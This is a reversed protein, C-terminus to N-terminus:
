EGQIEETDGFTKTGDASEAPIDLNENYKLLSKKIKNISIDSIGAEKLANVTEINVEAGSYDGILKQVLKELDNPHNPDYGELSSLDLDPNKEMEKRIENRVRKKTKIAAKIEKDTYDGIPKSLEELGLFEKLQDENYSGVEDKLQGWNKKADEAKINKEHKEPKDREPKEKEPKDKGSNGKAYLENTLTLSAVMIMLLTLKKM